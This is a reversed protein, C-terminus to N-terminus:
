LSPSSQVVALPSAGLVLFGPDLYSLVTGPLLIGHEGPRTYLLSPPICTPPQQWLCFSGSNSVDTVSSYDDSTQPRSGYNGTEGCLQEPGDSVKLCLLGRFYQTWPHWGNLMHLMMCCSSWIDVKADCPKGMVVEPAM